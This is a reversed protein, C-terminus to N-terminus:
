GAHVRIRGRGPAHISTRLCAVETGTNPVTMQSTHSRAWVAPGLASTPRSLAKTRSAIAPHIRPRQGAFTGAVAAAVSTTAQATANDSKETRLSPAAEPDAAGVALESHCGNVGSM